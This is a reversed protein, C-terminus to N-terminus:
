NYSLSLFGFLPLFFYVSFKMPSFFSASSNVGAEKRGACDPDSTAAGVDMTAAALSSCYFLWSGPITPAAAAATM